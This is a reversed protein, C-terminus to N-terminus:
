KNGGGRSGEEGSFGWVKEKLKASNRYDKGQMQLGEEDGAQGGGEGGHDIKCVENIRVDM